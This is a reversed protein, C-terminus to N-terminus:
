GVGTLLEIMENKIEETFRGEVAARETAREIAIKAITGRAEEADNLIPQLAFIMLLPFLIAFPLLNQM